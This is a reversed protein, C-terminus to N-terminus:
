TKLVEHRYVNEGRERALRRRTDKDDFWIESIEDFNCLTVEQTSELASPEHTAVLSGHEREAIIQFVVLDISTDDSM